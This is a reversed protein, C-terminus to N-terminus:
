WAYTLGVLFQFGRTPYNLYRENRRSLINQFNAFASLKKLLLYDVGVGMDVVDNLKQSTNTALSLAEIGGLWYLTMKLFIKDYLNYTGLLDVKYKPRHWPKELEGTKYAFYDGKLHGTFTEARNAYSLEGFLNFLTTNKPDYVIDFRSADRPSHTFFYLNKYNALSLGSHFSLREIINGKVGGYFALTQNTHLLVVQPALLPNEDVLDKFSTREIDGKIGVYPVLAKNRTYKAELFPYMNFTDVVSYTDNQYVLNFGVELQFVDIPLLFVPKIRWLNRNVSVTDTYKTLYLDAILKLTLSDKMTYAVQGNFGVQNERAQYFDKLFHFATNFRYHILTSDSYNELAVNGGVHNFVQQIKDRNTTFPPEYGYFHYKDRNYQIAGALIFPKTFLKGNLDIANHGEGSNESDVPGRQFSRHKLHIGYVYKQNRKNNFFGELYPSVFNGYGVKIYTGYLKTLIDQKARLVSIKRQLIEPEADIEELTYTLGNAEKAKPPPPKEFLRPVEPLLNKREKEIIFQADKMSGEKSSDQGLVTFAYLSILLFFFLRM